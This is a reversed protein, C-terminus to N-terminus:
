HYYPAFPLRERDTLVETFKPVAYVEVGELVGPVGIRFRILFKCDCFHGECCFFQVKGVSAGDAFGAGRAPM